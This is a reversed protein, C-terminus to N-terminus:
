PLLVGAVGQALSLEHDVVLGGKIRRKVTGEMVTDSEHSEKIQGWVKFFDAKEKSLVVLGDQNELKELYVDFQDGINIKEENRFENVAITGESKFGVDVIIENERIESVTGLVIQGEEFSV